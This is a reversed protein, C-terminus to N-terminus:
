SKWSTPLCYLIHQLLAYHQWVPQPWLFQFPTLSFSFLNYLSGCNTFSPIFLFGLFHQLHKLFADFFDM